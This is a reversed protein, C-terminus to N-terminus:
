RSFRPAVDRLVVAIAAAEDCPSFVPPTGDKFVESFQVDDYKELVSEGVAQPLVNMDSRWVVSQPNGSGDDITRISLEPHADHVCLIVKFVDGHWSLGSWGRRSRELYSEEQNPIASVEDCPVTDDILIPGDPCTRLANILDTYTQRFTHLGDLFVLDFSADPNAAFYEDSTVAHVSVGKPLDALDFRPAPDVGVRIPLQVDQFTMGTFLGVELYSRACDMGRYLSNIRRASWTERSESPLPLLRMEAGREKREASERLAARYEFGGRVGFKHFLSAANQIKNVYNRPM